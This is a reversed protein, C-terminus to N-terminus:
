LKYYVGLWYRSWHVLMCFGYVGIATRQLQAGSPPHLYCGFYTSSLIFFFLSYLILVDLQVKFQVYIIGLHVSGHVDVSMVRMYYVLHRKHVVEQPHALLARVIYLANIRLLSFLFQMM